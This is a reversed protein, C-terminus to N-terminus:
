LEIELLDHGVILKGDYEARVSPPALENWDYVDRTEVFSNWAAFHNLVLSGVEADRAVLGAHRPTSHIYWAFGHQKRLEVEQEPLTSEYVLM